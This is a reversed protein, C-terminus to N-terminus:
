LGPRLKEKDDGKLAVNSRSAVASSSRMIKVQIESTKPRYVNEDITELREDQTVGDCSIESPGNDDDDDGQYINVELSMQHSSSALKVEEEVARALVKQTEIDNKSNDITQVGRRPVRCTEKCPCIGAEKEATSLTDSKLSRLCVPEGYYVNPWVTDDYDRVVDTEIDVDTKSANLRGVELMEARPKLILICAIAQMLKEYGM